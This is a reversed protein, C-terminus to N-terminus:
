DQALQGVAAELRALQEEVDPAPVRGLVRDFLMEAADLDGAAAMDILKRVVKRMDSVTIAALMAARLQHVKKAHPNGKGERNGPLFRGRADHGKGSDGDDSPPTHAFDIM